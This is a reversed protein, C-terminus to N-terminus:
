GVAPLVLKLAVEDAAVCTATPTMANLGLTVAVDVGKTTQTEGNFLAVTDEVMEMAADDVSAPDSIVL